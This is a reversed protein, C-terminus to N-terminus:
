VIVWGFVDLGGLFGIRMIVDCIIWFLMLLWLSVKVRFCRLWLM